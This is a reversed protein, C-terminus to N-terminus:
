EIPAESDHIEAIIREMLERLARTLPRSKPWIGVIDMTAKWGPASLEALQARTSVMADSHVDDSQEILECLEREDLSM